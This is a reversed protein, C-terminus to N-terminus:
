SLRGDDPIGLDRMLQRLTLILIPTTLKSGISVLAQELAMLAASLAVRGAIPAQRAAASVQTRM